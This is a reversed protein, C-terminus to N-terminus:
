SSFSLTMIDIEHLSRRLLGMRRTTGISFLSDYEVGSKISNGYM